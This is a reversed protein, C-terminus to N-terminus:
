STRNLRMRKQIFGNYEEIVFMNKLVFFNLETSLKEKM